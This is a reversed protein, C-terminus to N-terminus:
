GRKASSEESSEVTPTSPATYSSQYAGADCSQLGAPAQYGRQDTAQCVPSTKGNADTFTADAPIKNVAPSDSQLAVTQTPGGNNALGDPSLLPDTNQQDGTATFGCDIGSELNYGQSTVTGSCNSANGKKDTNGAVISAVVSLSGGAVRFGSGGKGAVNGSITSNTIQTITRKSTFIAGGKNIAKNGSITSNTITTRAPTNNGQGIAMGGGDIAQNGTITTGTITVIGRNVHFIGGADVAKNGSITSNTITLTGGWNAIGGGIGGRVSNNAITSNNINMIGRNEIGGASGGTSSNSSITSNNITITGLFNTIGGGSSRYAVNNSFTSNTITVTGGNNYLGGGPTMVLGPTDSKGKAVIINQLTLHASQEVILVRVKSGGDLIVHQDTGDITLNKTIRLTNSLVIDSNGGACNFQITDGPAASNIANTLNAEDCPSVVIMNPQAHTPALTLGLSAFAFLLSMAAKTLPQSIPQKM